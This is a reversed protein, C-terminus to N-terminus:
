LDLTGPIIFATVYLRSQDFHNLWTVQTSYDVSMLPTTGRYYGATIEGLSGIFKDVQVRFDRMGTDNHKATAATADSSEFAGTNPKTTVGTFGNYLALTIYTRDFNVGAEVGLQPKGM